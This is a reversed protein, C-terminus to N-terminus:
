KYKVKKEKVKFGLEKNELEVPKMLEDLADFVIKFKADYRFEMENVKRILDKHSLMMNRMKVFTRMIEINVKVANKSKLVSSLMSVGQETFAMPLYKTHEGRKLTGFHCRLSQYEEHNLEFMFDDPFREINRRVSRKLVKTDINYLSALHYDLMVKYGRFLFINKEIVEDPM